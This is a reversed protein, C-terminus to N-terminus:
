GTTSSGRPRSGDGPRVRGNNARTSHLLIVREADSRQEAPVASKKYRGGQGKPTLVTIPRDLGRVSEEGLPTWKGGARDAFDASAVIPTAFKKTLAELRAAQNVALGFVSFTLRDQLGVNGFMVDGVHLGMGFGLPGQGAQARKENVDKMRAVSQLAAKLANRCAEKETDPQGAVCPFIGLFGDGIFHLVEGGREVIAGCAADFFANLVAIYSQRDQIEAMRTSNRLDGFAIASRITEGDGRRIQGSLVRGGASPGLYTTLASRAVEQRVALKCSVAFRNQIRLLARIEEDTFGEPRDTSWSGLMGQRSDQAFPVAFALYDTVGRKRLDNLIPFEQKGGENLRRRIYDLNHQLLHFYPSRSFRDTDGPRVHAYGERELGKSRWWTFGVARYLPHLVSFSLHARLLPLGSALLRECTGGVVTELDSDQLAQKMLWDNVHDILTQSTQATQPM